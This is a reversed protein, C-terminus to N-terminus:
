GQALTEFRCRKLLFCGPLILMTAVMPEPVSHSVSTEVETGFHDALITLDGINVQDDGSLDGDTWRASQMGFHSALITLDGINVMGDLTVDGPLATAVFPNEELLFGDSSIATDIALQDLSMSSELASFQLSLSAVGNSGSGYSSYPLEFLFWHEVESGGFGGLQNRLLEASDIPSQGNLVLSQGDLETGLTKIQVVATLQHEPQAIDAQPLSVTFNLPLYPSYINGGGTLFSGGSNETLEASGSSNQDAVDPTVYSLGTFVDWAQYTTNAQGRTWTNPSVFAAHVVSSLTATLSATGLLFLFRNM